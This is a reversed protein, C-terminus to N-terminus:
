TISFSYVIIPHITNWTHNVELWNTQIDFTHWFMSLLNIHYNDLYSLPQLNVISYPEWFLYWLILNNAWSDIFSYDLPYNFFRISPELILSNFLEHYLEIPRMLSNSPECLLWMLSWIYLQLFTDPFSAKYQRNWMEIAGARYVISYGSAKGKIVGRKEALWWM